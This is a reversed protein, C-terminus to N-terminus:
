RWWKSEPLDRPHVDLCRVMIGYITVEEENVYEKGDPGQVTAKVLWEMESNKFNPDIVKAGASLTEKAKTKVASPKVRCQLVMQLYKCDEKRHWVKAYRQNACYNISPSFYSVRDGGAHCGQTGRFGTRLIDSALASTTGHYVIGSTGWKADFDTVKVGYRDWGNPCYYPEGGRHRGDHLAGSWHTDGKPGYKKDWKPDMLQEIGKQDGQLYSTVEACATALEAEARKCHAKRQQQRQMFGQILEEEAAHAVELRALWRAALALAQRPAAVGRQAAIQDAFFRRRLKSERLEESCIHETDRAAAAICGRAKAGLHELRPQVADAARRGRIANGGGALRAEACLLRITEMQAQMEAQEAAAVEDCQQAQAAHCARARDHLQDLSRGAAEVHSELFSAASASAVAAAAAAASARVVRTAVSDPLGCPPLPPPTRRGGERDARAEAEAKQRPEAVGGGEAFHLETRRRAEARAEAEAKAEAEAEAKARAEAEVARAQAHLETRAAVARERCAQTLCMKGEAAQNAESEMMQFCFALDRPM